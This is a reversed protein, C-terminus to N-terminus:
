PVAEFYASRGIWEVFTDVLHSSIALAAEKTLGQHGHRDYFFLYVLGPGDVQVHELERLAPNSKLVHLVMGANWSFAPPHLRGPQDAM